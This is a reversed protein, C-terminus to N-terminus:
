AMELLADRLAGFVCSCNAGENDGTNFCRECAGESAYHLVARAADDFALLRQLMEGTSPAMRAYDRAETEVTSRRM